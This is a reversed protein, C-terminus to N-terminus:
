RSRHVVRHVGLPSSRWPRRDDLGIFLRNGSAATWRDLLELAQGQTLQDVPVQTAAFTAALGPLRATFL